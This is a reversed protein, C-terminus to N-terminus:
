YRLLDEEGSGSTRHDQFKAHIMQSELEEFIIFIIVRPQGQSIKSTKYKCYTWIDPSRKCSWQDEPKYEWLIEYYLLIDVGTSRFNASNILNRFSSIM